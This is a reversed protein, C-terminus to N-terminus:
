EVGNRTAKERVTTAHVVAEGAVLVAGAAVVDGIAAVVL